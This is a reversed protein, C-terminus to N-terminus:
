SRVLIDANVGPSGPLSFAEEKTPVYIDMQQRKVGPGIDMAVLPVHQLGMSELEKAYRKDIAPSYLIPANRFEHDSRPWLKNMLDPNLAISVYKSRHSFFDQTSQLKQGKYGIAGGGTPDGPYGYGTSKGNSIQAGLKYGRPQKGAALAEVDPMDEQADHLVITKEGRRLLVLLFVVTAFTFGLGLILHMTDPSM